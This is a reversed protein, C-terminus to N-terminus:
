CFSVYSFAEEFKPKVIFKGTGDIYGWKGGVKVAALGESFTHYGEFGPEIVINGFEDAFGFRGNREIATLNAERAPAAQSSETGVAPKEASPEAKEPQAVCRALFLGITFFIVLPAARTRM